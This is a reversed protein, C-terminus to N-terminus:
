RQNKELLNNLRHCTYNQATKLNNYQPKINHYANCSKREQPEIQVFTQQTFDCSLVISRHM